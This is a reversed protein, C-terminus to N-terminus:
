VKETNRTKKKQLTTSKCHQTLKLHVSFHNLKICTHTTHMRETESEKGNYTIALYQIYNGTNYQQVSCSVINLLM